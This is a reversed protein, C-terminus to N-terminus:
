RARSTPSAPRARLTGRSPRWKCSRWPCGTARGRRGRFFRHGQFGSLQWVFPFFLGNSYGVLAHAGTTPDHAAGTVLGHAALSDRREAVQDGSMAPLAYVPTREDLWNKTLLFLSDDMAIFAECDFNNAQPAATFAVQNGYTFRITDATVSDM